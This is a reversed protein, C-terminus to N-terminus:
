PPRRPLAIWTLIALLGIGGLLHLTVLPNCNMTVTLAGFLGQVCVLDASCQDVVALVKGEQEGGAQVTLM